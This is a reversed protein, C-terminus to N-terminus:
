GPATADDVELVHYGACNIVQTRGLVTVRDAPVTLPRHIHGHLFFRPRMRDILRRFSRFGRHCLDSGDGIGRPAAHTVVIDLRAFRRFRARVHRVMIRMEAETYQVPGGNYWHSGELGLITL